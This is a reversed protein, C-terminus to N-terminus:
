LVLEASKLTPVAVSASEAYRRGIQMGLLILVIQIVPNIEFIVTTMSYFLLVLYLLKSSFLRYSFVVFCFMVLAPLIGANYLLGIYTNDAIKADAYGLLLAQSSAIGMGQGLMLSVWNSLASYMVGLRVMLSFSAGGGRGTIVGINLFLWYGFGILGCFFIPYYLAKPRFRNRFRYAYYCILCLLGTTSNCLLLSVLSAIKLITNRFRLGFYHIILAFGGATSPIIFLGPSRHEFYVPFGVDTVFQIVQILVDFWFVSILYPYIKQEPLDCCLAGAYVFLISWYGRLGALVITVPMFTLSYCAALFILAVFVNLVVFPRTLFLRARSPVVAISYACLSVTLLAFIDKLAKVYTPTLAVSWPSIASDAKGVLTHNMM